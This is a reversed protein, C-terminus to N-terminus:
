RHPKQRIYSLLEDRLDNIEQIRGAAQAADRDTRASSAELAAREFRTQCILRLAVIVPDLPGFQGFIEAIQERTYIPGPFPYYVVWPRSVPNAGTRLWELLNQHERAADVASKTAM